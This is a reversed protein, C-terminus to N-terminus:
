RATAGFLSAPAPVDLELVGFADPEHFSPKPTRPPSWALYSRPDRGEMRYLGIPLRAGPTLARVVDPATFASEITAARRGPDCTTAIRAGSTWTVDSTGLRRDIDLDWFHGFPGQEMEYYHWPRAPDPTLFLEVCDEEYLKPRPAGLAWSRDVNLGTGELEWLVYLARPSYLFRVRTVIGTSRGAFDSDWEVPTACAWAADDGRGTVIVRDKPVPSAHAVPKREFLAAARV